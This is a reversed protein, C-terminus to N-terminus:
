TNALVMKLVKSCPNNVFMEAFHLLHTDTLEKLSVGQVKERM